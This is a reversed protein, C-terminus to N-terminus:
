AAPVLEWRWGDFEPHAVRLAEVTSPLPVPRGDLRAAHCWASVAEAAQALADALTDGASFCGPLDPVVVGWATTDTGPEIAAPYPAVKVSMRQGAAKLIRSFDRALLDGDPTLTVPIGHEHALKVTAAVTGAADGRPLARHLRKMTPDTTM